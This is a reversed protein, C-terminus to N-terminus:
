YQPEAAVLMKSSAEIQRQGWSQWRVIMKEMESCTFPKSLFDSMGSALCRQRHEETAHATIGVIPLSPNFQHIQAACALGDVGGSLNWDMFVIDIENEHKEYQQLAQEGSKATIAQWGLRATLTRMYLLLTENDEVILLM